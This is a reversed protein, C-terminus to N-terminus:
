RVRIKIKTQCKAPYTEPCCWSKSWHTEMLLEASSTRLFIDHGSKPKKNFYKNNYGKLYICTPKLSKRLNHIRCLLKSLKVQYSQEHYKWKLTKVKIIIGRLSSHYKWELTKVMIKIGESSSHNYHIIQQNVFRMPLKSLQVTVSLNATM